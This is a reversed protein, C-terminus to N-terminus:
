SVHSESYRERFAQEARALIVGVSGIAVELTAAIEAYSYGSHRLLLCDRQRQSMEGLVRRVEARDERQVVMVAPDATQRSSGIAERAAAPMEHWAATAARARRDDRVRNFALNLCVRRTWAFVEDDAHALVPDRSLRLLAEQAVEESAMADGLVRYALGYLAAYQRQYLRDFRDPM